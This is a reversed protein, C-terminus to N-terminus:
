IRCLVKTLVRLTGPKIERVAIVNFEHATPDVAAPAQPEAGGVDQVKDQTTIEVDGDFLVAFDNEEILVGAFEERKFGVQVGVVANATYDPKDNWNDGTEVRKILSLYRGHENILRKGLQEFSTHRALSPM